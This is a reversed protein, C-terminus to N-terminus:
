IFIVTKQAKEKKKLQLLLLSLLQSSNWSASGWWNRWLLSTVLRHVWCRLEQAAQGLIRHCLLDKSRRGKRCELLWSENESIELNAWPIRPLIVIGFWDYICHQATRGTKKKKKVAIKKGWLFRILMFPFFFQSFLGLLSFFPSFPQTVNWLLVWEAWLFVVDEGEGWVSIGCESTSM